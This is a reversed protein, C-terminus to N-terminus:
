ERRVLIEWVIRPTQKQISFRLFMILVGFLGIFRQSLLKSELSNGLSATAAFTAALRYAKNIIGVVDLRTMWSHGRIKATPKLQGVTTTEGM